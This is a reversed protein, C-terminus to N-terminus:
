IGFMLHFVYRWFAIGGAAVCIWTATRLWDFETIPRDEFQFGNPKRSDMVGSGEEEQMWKGWFSFAATKEVCM